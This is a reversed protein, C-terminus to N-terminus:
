SSVVFLCSFSFFVHTIKKNRRHKRTIQSIGHKGTSRSTFLHYKSFSLGIFSVAPCLIRRHCTLLFLRVQRLLELHCAYEVTMEVNLKLDKRICLPMTLLIKINFLRAIKNEKYYSGVPRANCCSTWSMTQSLLESSAKEVSYSM